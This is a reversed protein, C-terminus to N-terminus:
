IRLIGFLYDFFLLLFFFRTPCGVPQRGKFKDEKDKEDGVARVCSIHLLSFSPSSLPHAITERPGRFYGRPGKSKRAAGAGGERIVPYVSALCVYVGRADRANFSSLLSPFHLIFPAFICFCNLWAM